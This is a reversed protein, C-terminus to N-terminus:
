CSCGLRMSCRLAERSPVAMRFSVSRPDTEDTSLRMGPADIGSLGGLVTGGNMTMDIPSNDGTTQQIFGGASGLLASGGTAFTGEAMSSTIGANNGSTSLFLGNASGGTTGASGGASSGANFDFLISSNTGSTQVAMGHADGNSIFFTNNGGQFDPPGDMTGVQNVYIELPQDNKNSTIRVATVNGSLTNPGVAQTNAFEFTKGGATLDGTGYTIRGVPGPANPNSGCAITSQSGDGCEEAALGLSPALVGGVPLAVAALGAVSVGAVLRRRM